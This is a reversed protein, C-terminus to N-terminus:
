VTSEGGGGGGHPGSSAMSHELRSRFSNRHIFSVTNVGFLFILDSATTCTDVLTQSPWRSDGSLPLCIQRQCLMEDHLQVLSAVKLITSGVCTNYLCPWGGSVSQKATGMEPVLSVLM